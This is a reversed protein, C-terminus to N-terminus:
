HHNHHMDGGAAPPQKEVKADVKIAGAKAFTLTIPIKQGESLTQKLGVLMVHSGGPKFELVGGAPIEAGNMLMRMKM